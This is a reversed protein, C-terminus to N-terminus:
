GLRDALAYAMQYGELRYGLRNYMSLGMASSALATGAYGQSLAYNHLDEMMATGVGRRRASPLTTVNYVGAVGNCCIVTGAGIPNGDLTAIVSYSEKMELMTEIFPEGHAAMHFGEGVVDCYVRQDQYTLVPYVHADSIPLASELKLRGNCFMVPDNFVEYLGTLDISEEFTPRPSQDSFQISWPLHYRDLQALMRDVNTATIARYDEFIAANFTSIHWGTIGIAIGDQQTFSASPVYYAIREFLGVWNRQFQPQPLGIRGTSTFNSTMVQILRIPAQRNM